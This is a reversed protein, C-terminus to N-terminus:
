MLVVGFGVKKELLRKQNNNLKLFLVEGYPLGRKGM